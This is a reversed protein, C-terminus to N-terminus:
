RGSGLGSGILAWGLLLVVVLFSIGASPWHRFLSEVRELPGGWTLANLAAREELVILDGEPVRPLIREWPVLGLAFGILVPWLASWLAAPALAQAIEGAGAARFLGWPVAVAAAAMILWPLVLGAPPSADNDPRASGTLRRLFHTMLLTSGIASVMALQGALGYGLTTKVALKALFGGTLPLGGFGWALVAAPAVTRWLRSKGGAAVVGVALFLAGKALVHHAAYFAAGLVASGDGDALAMGLVAAVVGMQSVSSYALVTKPNIQTIGIAVGYFATLLGLGTLAAGWDPLASGFPLFRILGIVGAKIIAGSLVASAPMPAAPHAIPLWVHLPLLGAKLGFGAILLGFTMARWPSDPLAAVVDRIALSQGPSAAAMLAFALLLLIEGFMALAFYITGARRAGPSGDHAVLGYAALSVLAFSLYFSLLDGAIFVGLSGALTLLWVMAFRPGHGDRKLYQAAYAGSAIWLLAAVGLLMRGPADLAVTMRLRSEDLMLSPHGAAMIAAFLGPVPALVIWDLMRERVSRSLCALLMGVPTAVTGVLLIQGIIMGQPEEGADAGSM